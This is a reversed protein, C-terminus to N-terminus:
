ASAASADSGASAADEAPAIVGIVAGSPDKLIAIRGVQPVEFPPRIVAGGAEAAADCAARADDVHVYTIWHPPVGQFEPAAMDMIGAVPRGSSMAVHYPPAGEAATFIEFNWGMVATYFAKATEVERTMLESWHVDGHTTTM